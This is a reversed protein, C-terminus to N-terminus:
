GTAAVHRIHLADAKDDVSPLISTNLGFRAALRGITLPQADM